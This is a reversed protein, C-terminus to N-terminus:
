YVAIKQGLPGVFAKLSDDSMIVDFIEAMNQNYILHAFARVNNESDTTDYIVDMLVSSDPSAIRILGIHLSLPPAQEFLNRRASSLLSASASLLTGLGENLYDSARMFKASFVFIEETIEEGSERALLKACEEISSTLKFGVSILSGTSIRVGEHMAVTISVPAIAPYGHTTRAAEPIDEPQEQRLIAREYTKEGASYTEKSLRFRINPGINDDNIYFIKANSDQCKLHVPGNEGLAPDRFGVACIAHGVDPGDELLVGAILVPYRSRVLTSCHMAFTEIDFFGGPLNGTRVDPALGHEKIAERIQFQTLHQSPFIRSGLSATKHASQTIAVTTPVAHLDDFASSHLMTWLSITACSAIASDQQQWALGDVYMKIGAVHCQYRRHVTNRPTETARKDPYWRLVTRGLPACPIPRIVVFGLYSNQLIALTEENGGLADVLDSERINSSFYHVRKCANDYGRASQAYFASFEALYDRDFYTPEILVSQADLGILYCRLYNEQRSLTPSLALPDPAEAFRCLVINGSSLHM